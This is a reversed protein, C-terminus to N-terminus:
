AQFWSFVNYSQKMVIVEEGRSSGFLITDDAFHLHTIAEGNPVVMFGGILGSDKAKM